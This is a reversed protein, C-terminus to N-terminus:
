SSAMWAGRAVRTAAANASSARAIQGRVRCLNLVDTSGAVCCCGHEWHELMRPDSVGCVKLIEALVSPLRIPPLHSGAFYGGLTAAPVDIKRALQRVTLGAGERVVTLERAFAKRDSLDPLGSHM